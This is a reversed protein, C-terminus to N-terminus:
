SIFTGALGPWSKCELKESIEKNIPRQHVPRGHKLSWNHESKLGIGAPFPQCNIALSVPQHNRLATCDHLAKKSDLEKAAATKGIFMVHTAMSAFSICNINGSEYICKNM